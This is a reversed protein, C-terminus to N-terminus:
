ACSRLKIIINYVYYCTYTNHLYLNPLALSSRARDTWLMHWYLVPHLLHAWGKSPRMEWACACVCVCVCVCCLLLVCMCLAFWVRVCARAVPFCLLLVYMCLLVWVRLLSNVCLCVFLSVCVCLYLWFVCVCLEFCVCACEFGILERLLYVVLLLCNMNNM